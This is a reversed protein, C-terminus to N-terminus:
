GPVPLDVLSIDGAKVCAFGREEIERAAVVAMFRMETM